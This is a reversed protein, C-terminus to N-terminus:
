FPLDDAPDVKASVDVTKVKANDPKWNNVSAYSKGSQGVKLDLNIWEDNKSTLWKILEIRKMSISGKIFDPANDKPM